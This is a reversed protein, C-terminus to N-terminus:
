PSKRYREEKNPDSHQREPYKNVVLVSRGRLKSVFLCIGVENVEDRSTTLTPIYRVFSILTKYTHM